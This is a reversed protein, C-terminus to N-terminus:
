MGEGAGDSIHSMRFSSGSESRSGGINSSGVTDMEGGGYSGSNRRESSLSSYVYLVSVVSVCTCM